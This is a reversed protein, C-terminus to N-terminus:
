VAPAEATIPNRTAAVLAAWVADDDYGLAWLAAGGWGARRAIEARAAAGEADVWQVIRSQVCSTTADTVPLEYTFSWEGASPDYVPIGGRRTALDIVSRPTVTTKDEATTPCTGSTSTVWNYGYSPVGLVLKSHYQEPVAKSVGDVAQQVWALPAIQGPADVSFDYGMIRIADVHAAIAGHDYVWYGRDGTVTEDYVPPISVTLTRGDDHLASALDEVFAVWNPSTTAWTERGDAYAFQEYDLDIGDADLEDAFDIITEIHRARADPDALIAAMGGAPMEDKISPVLRINSDAVQDLFEDTADVSANDDIVIQDVSMAGYWFPSLERVSALRSDLTPMADDIVWYPTWVDIPIAGPPLPPPPEDGSGRTVVFVVILALVAAIGGITLTRRDLGHRSPPRPPTDDHFADHGSAIEALEDLGVDRLSEIVVVDRAPRLARVNPVGIVRCGAAVASRVGTPSDEIAICDRPDVGCAAAGMRYPTPKPKGEGLPVEDGTIVADFADPPLAALIPDVFRRWSMTVLACPVGAENLDRLLRRAGPRWPIRERLRAIVGDLMRDVIDYPDLPVGGHERIYEASDLLDFGVVAKAHHEPWEGGFSEVLEREVEFWYPETDVLTGDMDWLVAAPM